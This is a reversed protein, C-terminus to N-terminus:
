PSVYGLAALREALPAPVDVAPRELATTARPCGLASRWAPTGRTMGPDTALDFREVAGLDDVIEVDAGERCLRFSRSWAGGEEAWFRSPTAAALVRGPRTAGGAVPVLSYAHALPPPSLGALELLTPYLDQLQVPEEVVAGAPLRGPAAIVLPVALVERYLTRGHSLQHHEGFYEGHDSTVAVVDGGRAEWATVLTHLLFDALLAEGDYLDRLLRLGDPPIELEGLAYRQSATLGRSGARAALQLGPPSVTLYPLSWAQAREPALEELRARAWPAPTALHPGHTTVLNVFLFLPDDRERMAELAAAVVATDRTDNRVEGFGRVLGLEPALFPNGVVAVTRYGASTLREALTPVAPDMPTMAYPTGKLQVEGSASAAQAGHEWPMLGTFLSAHSPWTWPAPATADAFRVGAAALADLQPTTPRANGYSSVADARLTDLVVLLVDPREEARCGGALAAFAAVFALSHRSM